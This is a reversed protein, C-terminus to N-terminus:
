AWPRILRLVDRLTRRYNVASNPALQEFTQVERDINFMATVGLDYAAEFSGPALNLAKGYREISEEYNGKNFQRNGSRVASREPMRQASATGLNLVISLVALLM